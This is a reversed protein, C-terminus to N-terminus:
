ATGARYIKHSLDSAPYNVGTVPDYSLNINYPQKVLRDGTFVYDAGFSMTSGFQRQLGISTQYAAPTQTIPNHIQLSINRTIKGANWLAIAQEFTPAPGNFPNSAFDPRSDNPVIPAISEAALQTGHANEDAGYYKGGGGRIVTRDNLQFAFGVRPGFNNLDNPRDGPLFPLVEFENAFTNLEADYRLGLNLTLRSTIAWDDQVWGGFGDRPITEAFNGVAQTYSRANPSLGALNRRCTSSIPFLAKSTVPPARQHRSVSATSASISYVSM